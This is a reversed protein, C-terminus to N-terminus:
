ARKGSRRCCRRGRRKAARTGRRRGAGGRREARGPECRRSALAFSAFACFRTRTMKREPPTLWSSVHSGFGLVSVPPGNWAMGVETGPVCMQSSSGCVAFCICRRARTRPTLVGAVVVAVAVVIMSVPRLGSGPM